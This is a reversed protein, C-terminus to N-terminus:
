IIRIPENHIWSICVKEHTSEHIDCVKCIGVTITIEPPTGAVARGTRIPIVLGRSVLLKKDAAEKWSVVRTESVCRNTTLFVM